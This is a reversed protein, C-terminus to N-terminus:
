APGQDVLGAIWDLLRHYVGAGDTVELVGFGAVNGANIESLTPQGADDLLFDYGLLDLGRDHYARWTAGVVAEETPTVTARHVSGGATRNNIWGGEAALRLYGGYIEGEVVVVRKDGAVVNDLYRVFEYPEPGTGFLQELITELADHAEPVGSAPEIWWRGLEQWIRAVGRGGYTRNRKAVVRGQTRVFDGAEAVERTVIGAPMFRSAVSRYFDRTDCDRVGSPRQVFRVADEYRVLTELYGPLYPKDTRCFVLDFDALGAREVPAAGLALFEQYDLPRPVPTVPFSVGDGLREAQLHCLRFRPDLPFHRYLEVTADFPPHTLPDTICLLRIM